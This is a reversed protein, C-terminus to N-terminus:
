LRRLECTRERPTRLELLAAEQAAVLPDFQPIEVANNGQEHKRFLFLYTENQPRYRHFYLQDKDQIAKRLADAQAIDAALEFKVGVQWQEATGKAVAKGDVLLEYEGAALGAVALEAIQDPRVVRTAPAGAGATDSSREAQGPRSRLGHALITPSPLRGATARFRVQQASWDLERVTVGQAQQVARDALRVQWRAPPAGLKTALREAVIAAGVAHPHLGNDTFYFRATPDTAGVQDPLPDYLDLAPVYALGRQRALEAIRQAYEALYGNYSAPDPLPGPIKERRPPSLLVLRAQTTALADLLRGYQTVFEELGASGAQAENGGYQLLILTPKADRTDKLLRQFGDQPTGFVARAEGWVTDGSWGLNRVSFRRDRFASVLQCELFGEVQLREIFTGGLLVIRDGDRIEVGPEAGRALTAMGVLLALVVARWPRHGSLLRNM